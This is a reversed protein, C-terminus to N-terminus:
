SFHSKANESEEKERKAQELLEVSMPVTIYCNGRGMPRLGDIKSYEAINNATDNILLMEADEYTSRKGNNDLQCIFVASIFNGTAIEKYEYIDIAYYEQTFEKRNFYCAVLGVDADKYLNKNVREYKTKDLLEKGKIDNQLLTIIENYPINDHNEFSQAILQKALFLEKIGFKKLRKM